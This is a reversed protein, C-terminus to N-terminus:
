ILQKRKIYEGNAPKEKTIYTISYYRCRIGPNATADHEAKSTGPVQEAGQAVANDPADAM